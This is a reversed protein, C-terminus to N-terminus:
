MMVAMQEECVALKRVCDRQSFTEYNSLESWEEETWQTMLITRDKASLRNQWKDLNKEEELWKEMAAGIKGKMIRGCGTDIPLIKDTHNEPLM